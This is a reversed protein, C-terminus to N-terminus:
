LSAWNSPFGGVGESGVVGAAVAQGLSVGTGVVEPRFRWLRMWGRGCPNGLSPLILAWYINTTITASTFGEKKKKKKKKLLPSGLM